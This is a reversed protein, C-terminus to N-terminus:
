NRLDDGTNEVTPPMIALASPHEPKIAKPKIPPLVETPDEGLHEILAMIVKSQYGFRKGFERGVNILEERIGQNATPDGLEIL